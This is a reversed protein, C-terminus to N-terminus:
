WEDDEEEEDEEEEDEEMDKLLNLIKERAIRKYKALIQEKKKTIEEKKEDLEEYLEKDYIEDIAEILMKRLEQPVFAVLSDLEVVYDFQYKKYRPDREIKAITEADEPKPPLNYKDVQEPTLAVRRIEVKSKPLKFYELSEELFRQIDVGSPDLDGLYFIIVKDHRYLHEQLDITNNFIFTWSSYGRNVRIPIDKEGIWNKITSSLAEKEIWVECVTKQKFWKGLSTYTWVSGFYKEIIENIDLEDVLRKCERETSDVENETFGYDGLSGYTMRTKDELIDWSFIGKKRADVLQKSLTQYSSRTNPIINKSVLNYFLTRLTPKVGQSQFYKIAVNIENIVSDWDIRGM